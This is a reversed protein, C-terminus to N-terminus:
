YGFAVKAEFLHNEYDLSGHFTNQYEYSMELSINKNVTYAASVSVSNTSGRLKYATYFPFGFTDVIEHESSIAVIDPRPPVAYAIVDGNRYSYALAVQLSSTLDFTIRGLATNGSWDWFEDRANFTEYLYAAELRLRDTLGVGARVTFRNDRGTRDNDGYGSYGLNDEVLLWPATRGLGFRYRLGLSGGIRAFNFDYYRRWIESSFDAGFNLRLDRALQLGNSARVDTEWAWVDKADASRDSNSINNDYVAGTDAEFRWDARADWGIAGILATLAILWVRNGNRRPFVIPMENTRFHNLLNGACTQVRPVGECLAVSFSNRLVRSIDTAEWGSIEQRIASL